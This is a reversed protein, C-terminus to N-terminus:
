GGKFRRLINDMLEQILYLNHLTLLRIGLVEKSRVLHSLYARTFGEKCAYCGCGKQIVSNNTRSASKRLSLKTFRKGKVWVTGHRALRTPLVCDFM